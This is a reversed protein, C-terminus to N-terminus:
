AGGAAKHRVGGGGDRVKFVDIDQVAVDVYTNRKCRQWRDGTALKRPGNGRLVVALHPVDRARLLVVIRHGPLRVDNIRGGRVTAPGDTLRVGEEEAIGSVMELPESIGRITAYRLPVPCM